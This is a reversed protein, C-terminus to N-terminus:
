LAYFAMRDIFTLVEMMRAEKLVHTEGLCNVPFPLSFLWIMPFNTLYAM